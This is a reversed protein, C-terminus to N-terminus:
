IRKGKKLNLVEKHLANVQAKLEDITRHLRKMLERNKKHNYIGIIIAIIYFGVVGGVLVTLTNVISRVSEVFPTGALTSNIDM